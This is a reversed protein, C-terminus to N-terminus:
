GSKYAICDLHSGQWGSNIPHVYRSIEYKEFASSEMMERLDDAELYYSSLAKNVYERAVLPFFPFFKRLIRTGFSPLENEPVQIRSHIDVATVFLKGDSKLLSHLESLLKPTVPSYEGLVGISYIFDFSEKDIDVSFIDGCLLDIAEVDMEEGCVPNRAQRLMDPSIDVGMLHKVNKLCHFYRGTGCGVDLVSIRHVFSASIDGLIKCYHTRSGYKVAADDNERYKRAHQDDFSDKVKKKRDM